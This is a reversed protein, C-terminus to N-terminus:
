LEPENWWKQKWKKEPRGKKNNNLKTENDYKQEWKHEPITHKLKNKIKNWKLIKTTRM